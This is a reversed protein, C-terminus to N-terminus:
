QTSVSQHGDPRVFRDGRSALKNRVATWKVAEVHADVLLYNAGGNHQEVAVQGAFATIDYGGSSEDAFHFHDSGTFEEHCEAMYFTDSPNPVSVVKSFDLHSAGFPRATLFDNIAYSHPRQGHRDTPCRFVLNSGVYPSLTAKWSPPRHQSSPLTEEHDDVYLCVAIGIQKLNNVCEITRARQKARALAPLLLSALVAIIAIVVLLEMLTFGRSRKKM